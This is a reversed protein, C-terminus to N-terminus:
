GVAVHDFTVQCLMSGRHSTVALGALRSGSIQITRTSGPIPSWNVGDPSTYATFSTGSATVKVYAPAGGSIAAARAAVAGQATRYQVVIGNGPTTYMASYPSAPDSSQRLMVGAKAWPNTNQQSSVKAQVSGNGALQQWVYRFQDSRSWIDNGGGSVSWVGGSLSQSGPRTPSGVDACNWGPPCNPQTSPLGFAYLKGDVSGAFIQGNAVSPAGYLTGGTKYSFLPTGNSADLVELTPGAGDIVLGNAYALAPVVPKPTDHEWIQAGTGPNLARVNGLM